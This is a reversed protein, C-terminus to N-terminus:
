RPDSFRGGAANVMYVVARAVERDSLTPDGGRAPMGRIGRIATRTLARQGEAILPKWAARDGFRPAKLAGSDHCAACVAAYVQAGSRGDATGSRGDQANSPVGHAGSQGGRADSQGDRGGAPTAGSQAHAVQCPVSLTVAALLALVARVFPIQM